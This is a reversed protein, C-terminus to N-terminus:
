PSIREVTVGRAALLHITVALDRREREWREPHLDGPAADGNAYHGGSQDCGYLHIADARTAAYLLAYQVSWELHGAQMHESVGPCTHWHKWQIGRWAPDDRMFRASDEMTFVLDLPRHDGLAGQFIPIDGACLVDANVHLLARNVAIVLGYAHWRLPIWTELLSPGPCCVAAIM